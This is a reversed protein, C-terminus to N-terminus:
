SRRGGTKEEDSGLAPSQGSALLTELARALGLWGTFEEIGGLEDALSGAIPDSGVDVSLTFLHQPPTAM